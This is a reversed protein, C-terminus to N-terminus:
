YSVPPAKPWPAPFPAPAGMKAQGAVLATLVAGEGVAMLVVHNKEGQIHVQELKGLNAESGIQEGLSLISASMASVRDANIEPQLASAIILGDTSILAAAEIEPSSRQLVRMREMLLHQREQTLLFRM